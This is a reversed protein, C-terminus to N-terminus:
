AILINLMLQNYKLIHFKTDVRMVFMSM